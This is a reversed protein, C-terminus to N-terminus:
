RNRMPRSAYRFQIASLECALRDIAEDPPTGAARLTELLGTQHLRDGLAVGRPVAAALSAFFPGARDLNSGPGRRASETLFYGAQLAVLLDEFAPSPPGEVRVHKSRMYPEDAFLHSAGAWPDRSGFCVQRLGAMLIAGACMPCPETTTYLVCERPNAAAYDLALLANIEAHAIPNGALYATCDARSSTCATAGLPSCAARGM